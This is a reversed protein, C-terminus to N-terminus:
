VKSNAYITPSVMYLPQPLLRLGLHNTQFVQASGQTNVKGEQRSLRLTGWRLRTGAGPVQLLGVSTLTSPLTPHFATILIPVESTCLPLVCTLGLDTLMFIIPIRPPLFSHLPHSYTYPRLHIKCSSAVPTIFNHTM